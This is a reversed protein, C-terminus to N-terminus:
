WIWLLVLIDIYYVLMALFMQFYRQKMTIAKSFRPLFHIKIPTWNDQWENTKHKVSSIRNELHCCREEQSKERVISGDQLHIPIKFTMVVILASHLLSSNGWPRDYGSQEESVLKMEFVKQCNKFVTLLVKVCIYRAYYM